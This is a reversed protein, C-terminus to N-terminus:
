QSCIIIYDKTKLKVKYISEGHVPNTVIPLIFFNNKLLIKLILYWGGHAAQYPINTRVADYFDKSNYKYYPRYLAFTTDIKFIFDADKNQNKWFQSEWDIVKQKNINTYPIDDIKLSFGVKAVQFNTNM